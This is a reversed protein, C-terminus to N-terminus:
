DFAADLFDTLLCGDIQENLYANRLQMLFEDAANASKRALLALVEEDGIIDAVNSEEDRRMAWEALLQQLHRVPENM